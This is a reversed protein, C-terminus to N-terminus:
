LINHIKENKSDNGLGWENEQIIKQIAVENLGEQEGHKEDNDAYENIIINHIYGTLFGLSQASARIASRM